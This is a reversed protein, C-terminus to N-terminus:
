KILELKKIRISLINSYSKMIGLQTNLLVVDEETLNIGEEKICLNVYKHIFTSLKTIKNNLENYEKELSEKM